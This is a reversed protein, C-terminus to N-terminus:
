EYRIQQKRAKNKEKQSRVKNTRENVNLVHSHKITNFDKHQTKAKHKTFNSQKTQETTSHSFRFLITM